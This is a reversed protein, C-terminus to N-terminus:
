TPPHAAFSRLTSLPNYRAVAVYNMPNSAAVLTQPLTMAPHPNRCHQSPCPSEFQVAGMLHSLLNLPSDGNLSFDNCPPALTMWKPLVQASPLARRPRLGLASEAAPILPPPLYRKRKTIRAVVRYIGPTQPCRGWALIESRLLRM